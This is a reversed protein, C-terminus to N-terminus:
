PDKSSLLVAVSPKAWCHDASLSPAPSSCVGVATCAGPSISSACSCPGRGPNTCGQFGLRCAQTPRAAAAAGLSLVCSVACECHLCHLRGLLCEFLGLECVSCRCAIFPRSLRQQKFLEGASTRLWCCLDKPVKRLKYHAYQCLQTSSWGAAHASCCLLVMHTHMDVHLSQPEM